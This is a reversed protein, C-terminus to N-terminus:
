WKCGRTVSLIWIMNKNEEFVLIIAVYSMGEITELSKLPIDCYTPISCHNPLPQPSISHPLMTLSQCSRETSRQLVAPIFPADSSVRVKESHHQVALPPTMELLCTITLTMVSPHISSISQDVLILFHPSRSCITEALQKDLCHSPLSTIHSHRNHSSQSLTFSLFFVLFAFKEKAPARRFLPTGTKISLSASYGLLSKSSLKLKTYDM